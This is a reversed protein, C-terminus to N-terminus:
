KGLMSKAIKSGQEQAKTIIFQVKEQLTWSADFEAIKGQDCLYCISGADMDLASKIFPYWKQTKQIDVAAQQVADYLVKYDSM